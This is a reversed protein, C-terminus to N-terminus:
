KEIVCLSDFKMRPPVSRDNLDYDWSVKMGQEVCASTQLHRVDFFINLMVKYTERIQDDKVYGHIYTTVSSAGAEAELHSALYGAWVDRVITQRTLKGPAKAMAEPADDPEDRDASKARTPAAPDDGKDLAELAARARDRAAPLEIAPYRGLTLKTTRGAYRYRVAWSKVGSTQIVLYLGTVVEDAIERRAAGPKIKGITPTTLRSM